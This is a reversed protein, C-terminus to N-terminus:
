SYPPIDFQCHCKCKGKRPRASISTTCQGMIVYQSITIIPSVKMFSTDQNSSSPVLNLRARSRTTLIACTSLFFTLRTSFPGVGPCLHLHSFSLCLMHQANELSWCINSFYDSLWCILDKLLHWFGWGTLQNHEDDPAFTFPCVPFLYILCLSFCKPYKLM